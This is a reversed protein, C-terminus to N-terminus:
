PGTIAIATDSGNPRERATVTVTAGETLTSGSTTLDGDIRTDDTVVFVHTDGGFDEVTVEDGTASTVTGIVRNRGSSQTGSATTDGPTTSGLDPLQGAGISPFTNSTSPTGFHREVLAGAVFGAVVFLAVVLAATLRPLRSRGAPPGFEDDDFWEAENAATGSDTAAMATGAPLPPPTVNTEESM